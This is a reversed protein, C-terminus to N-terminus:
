SLSLKTIPNKDIGCSELQQMSNIFLDLVVSLIKIKPLRSLNRRFFIAKLNPDKLALDKLVEDSGDKSGDDVMIIEYSCHLTELVEKLQQYLIPLNEKENYVPLIVSLDM